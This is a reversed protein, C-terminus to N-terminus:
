KAAPSLYGERLDNWSNDAIQETRQANQPDMLEEMVKPLHNELPLPVEVINQKPDNPDSIFLHHFHQIWELPHM